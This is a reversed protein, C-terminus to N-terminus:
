ADAAYTSDDCGCGCSTVERPVRYISGGPQTSSIAGAEVSLTYSTGGKGRWAGLDFSAGPQVRYVRLNRYTLPTDPVCIEPKAGSVFYAYPTPHDANAVVSLKGTPEVLLATERDVAIGRSETAWGDTIIRALFVLFRGMRDREIFHTDTIIGNLNALHLFDRDLTIDRNFPNALADSSRASFRQAAYVFEGLITLGASTGGVPAREAVAHIADQVPTGKWFNVYDSQDGGAIFL